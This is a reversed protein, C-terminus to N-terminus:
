KESNEPNAQINKKDPGMHSIEITLHHSPLPQITWPPRVRMGQKSYATQDFSGQSSSRGRSWTVEWGGM